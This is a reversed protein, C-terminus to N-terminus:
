REQYIVIDVRSLRRQYDRFREGDARDLPISPGAGFITIRSEDISADKLFEMAKFAREESLQTNADLDGRTGSHGIINVKLSPDYALKGAIRTLVEKDENDLSSGREVQYTYVSTRSYSVEMYILFAISVVILAIGAGVHFRRPDKIFSEM